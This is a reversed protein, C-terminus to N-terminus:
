STPVPCCGVKMRGKVEEESIAACFTRGNKHFSSSIEGFQSPLRTPPRKALNESLRPALGVIFDSSKVDFKTVTLCNGLKIDGLITNARTQLNFGISNSHGLKEEVIGTFMSKIQRQNPNFKLYKPNPSAFSCHQASNLATRTPFNPNIKFKLSKTTSLM